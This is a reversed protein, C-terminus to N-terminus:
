VESQFSALLELAIISVNCICQCSWTRKFTILDKIEPFAKFMQKATISKIIQM